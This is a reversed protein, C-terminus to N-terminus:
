ETPSKIPTASFVTGSLGCGIKIGSAFGVAIGDSM